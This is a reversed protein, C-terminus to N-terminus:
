QVVSPALSSCAAAMAWQREEDDGMARTVELEVGFRFQDVLPGGPRQEFAV